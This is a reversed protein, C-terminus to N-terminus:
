EESQALVERADHYRGAKHLAEILHERLVTNKNNARYRAMWRDCLKDLNDQSRYLHILASYAEDNQPDLSIVREYSRIAQQPNNQDQYIEALAIHVELLAPSIQAAEIYQRVAKKLQHQKQYFTGVLYHFRASRPYENLLNLLVPEVQSADFKDSFFEFIERALRDYEELAEKNNEQSQLGTIGSEQQVSSQIDQQVSAISQFSMKLAKEALQFSQTKDSKQLSFRALGFYPLPHDSGRRIARQYSSDAKVTKGLKEYTWGLHRLSYPTSNISDLATYIERATTWRNLKELVKGYEILVQQKAPFQQYLQRYVSAARPLSDQREYTSATALQTRLTDGTFTQISDYVARANSWKNMVEYTEAIDTLVEPDRPFQSQMRRLVAMKGKSNFQRENIQILANYIRKNRPYKKMLSKYLREADAPKQNVLLVEGYALNIDIDDPKLQHLKKYVDLLPAYDKKRFLSSGKIRLLDVNDPFRKLGSDAWTISKGWREMQAYLYALNRYVSVSDPLYTRATQFRKLASQLSDQQFQQAGLAINVKGIRQRLQERSVTRIVNANLMNTTTDIKTYYRLARRYKQMQVLAEAEIWNLSPNEPFLRIGREAALQAMLANGSQLYSTSLLIHAQVQTSDKDLIDRLTTIAQPYEGSQYYKMATQLLSTQQAHSTTSGFTLLLILLFFTYWHNSRHMVRRRSYNM